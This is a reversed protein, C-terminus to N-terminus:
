FLRDFGDNKVENKLFTCLEGVEIIEYEGGFNLKFYQAFNFIWLRM